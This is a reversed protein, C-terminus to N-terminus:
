NGEAAVDIANLQPLRAQGGADMLPTNVVTMDMVPLRKEICGSLCVSLLILSKINKM